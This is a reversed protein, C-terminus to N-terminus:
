RQGAPKPQSKLVRAIEHALAESFQARGERNLHSIDRFYDEPPELTAFNWVECQGRRAVEAFLARLGHREPADDMAGSLPPVAYVPVIGRSRYRAALGALQDAAASAAPDLSSSQPPPSLATIVEPRWLSPDFGTARDERRGMWSALQESGKTEWGGMSSAALLSPLRGLNAGILAKRYRVVAVHQLGAALREEFTAAATESSEWPAAENFVQPESLEIVAIRVNGSTEFRPALAILAGLSSGTFAANFGPLEGLDPAIQVLARTVLDPSVGDQARSSGLFLVSVKGHREFMAAKTLGRHTAAAFLAHHRREFLELCLVIIAVGILFWALRRGATGDNRREIM